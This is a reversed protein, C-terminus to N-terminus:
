LWDQPVEVTLLLPMLTIPTMLTLLGHFFWEVVLTPPKPDPKQQFQSWVMPALLSTWHVPLQSNPSADLKPCWADNELFQGDMAEMCMTVQTRAAWELNSLDHHPLEPKSKCRYDRTGLDLGSGTTSTDLNTQGCRDDNGGLLTTTCTPFQWCKLCDRMEAREVQHM